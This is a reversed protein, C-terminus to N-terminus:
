PKEQLPLECSESQAEQSPEQTEQNNLLLPRIAAMPGPCRQQHCTICTAVVTNYSDESPNQNFNEIAQVTLDAVADFQATRNSMDTPWACKMREYTKLPTVPQKHILQGRADKMSKLMERMLAALESVGNPRNELMILNDPSGPIGPELPTLHDCKLPPTHEATKCGTLVISLLATTIIIQAWKM